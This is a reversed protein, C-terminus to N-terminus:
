EAPLTTHEIWELEARIGPLHDDNASQPGGFIVSAAYRSLDSPLPDGICPCCRELVFGRQELLQGVRGPTSDHQHVIILIRQEQM